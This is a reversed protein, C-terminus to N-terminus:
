SVPGAEFLYLRQGVVLTLHSLKSPPDAASGFPDSRLEGGSAHLDVVEGSPSVLRASALSGSEISFRARLQDGVQELGIFSITANGVDLSEGAGHAIPHLPDPIAQPHSAAPEGDDPDGSDGDASGANASASASASPDVSGAYRGLPLLACGTTLALAAGIVVMRHVPLWQTM